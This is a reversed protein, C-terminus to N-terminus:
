SGLNSGEWIEELPIYPGDYGLEHLIERFGCMTRERLGKGSVVGILTAEEGEFGKEIDANSFARGDSSLYCILDPALAIPSFSKTSWAILNENKFHILIEVEGYEQGKLRIKGVDFGNCQQEEEVHITGTFINYCSLGNEILVDFVSRVPDNSPAPHKSTHLKSGINEALQLTSRFEKTVIRELTSKKMPWMAVFSSGHQRLLQDVDEAAEATLVKCGEKDNALVVTSTPLSSFTALSIKPIARGPVGDADIVAIDSGHLANSVNAVMFPVISNAAGIELPILYSIEGHEKENLTDFAELALVGLKAPDGTAKPAGIYFVVATLKDDRVEDVGVLKVIGDNPFSKDLIASVLGIPGGGGSALFCSGNAIDFLNSKGIKRM